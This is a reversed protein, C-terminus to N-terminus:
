AARLVPQVPEPDAAKGRAVIRNGPRPGARRARRHRDWTGRRPPCAVGDHVAPPQRRVAPGRTTTPPGSRCGSHAVGIGAKLRQPLDPVAPLWEQVLFNLYGPGFFRAIGEPVEPGIESYSIGGGERFIRVLKETNAVTPATFQLLGGASVPSAGDALVYAQEPTM